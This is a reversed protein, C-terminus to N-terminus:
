NDRGQVMAQIKCVPIDGSSIPDEINIQAGEKNPRNKTNQEWWAEM